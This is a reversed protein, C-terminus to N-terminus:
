AVPEVHMPHVGFLIATIFATTLNRGFLFILVFVLTTNGLHLILNTVHYGLPELQFLHYDVALSTITLPHYNGMYQFTSWITSLGVLSTNKIFPNQLIYIPDDWNTFGNNLSPFYTLANIVVVIFLSLVYKRNIMIM